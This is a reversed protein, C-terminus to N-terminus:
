FRIYRYSPPLEVVRDWLYNEASSANVKELIRKGCRECVIFPWLRRPPTKLVAVLVQEEHGPHRPLVTGCCRCQGAILLIRHRQLCHLPAPAKEARRRCLIGFFRRTRGRAM